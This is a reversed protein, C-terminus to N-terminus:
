EKQMGAYISEPCLRKFYWADVGTYILVNLLPVTLMAPFNLSVNGLIMMSLLINALVSLPVSILLAYMSVFFAEACVVKKVDAFSAGMARYISYEKTYFLIGTRAACREIELLVFGIFLILIFVILLMGLLQKLEPSLEIEYTIYNCDEYASVIPNVAAVIEEKSLGSKFFINSYFAEGYIQQAFADNVILKENNGENTIDGENQYYEPDPHYLVAVEDSFVVEDELSTVTTLEMSGGPDDGVVLVACPLSTDEFVIGRESCYREFLPDNYTLVVVLEDTKTQFTWIDYRWGIAYIVGCDVATQIEEVTEKDFLRKSFNGYFNQIIQFDAMAARAPREPMELFAYINALAAFIVNCIVLITCVTVTETRRRFVQRIGILFVANTTRLNVVSRIEPEQFQMMEIPQMRAMKKCLLFIALFVAAGAACFAIMYGGATLVVTMEDNLLATAIAGVAAKCFITGAAVGLISGVAFYVLGETFLNKYLQRLSLGVARMSGWQRIRNMYNMNMSHFLMVFSAATIFASVIYLVTRAQNIGRQGEYMSEKAQNMSVSRYIQAQRALEEDTMDSGFNNFGVYDSYVISRALEMDSDVLELDYHSLDSDSLVDIHFPTEIGEEGAIREATDLSIISKSSRGNSATFYETSEIFGCITFTYEQKSPMEFYAGGNIKATIQDGIAYPTPLMRNVSSEIAIEYDQEPFRGELITIHQFFNLDRETGAILWTGVDPSLSLKISGSESIVAYKKGDLPFSNRFLEVQEKSVSRIEFDACNNALLYQQFRSDLTNGLQVLTFILMTSLAIKVVIGWFTRYERLIKKISYRFM